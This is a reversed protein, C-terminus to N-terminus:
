AVMAATSAAKVLGASEFILSFTYKCRMFFCNVRKLSASGLSTLVSSSSWTSISKRIRSSAVAAMGGRCRSSCRKAGNTVNTIKGIKARELAPIENASILRDSSKEVFTTVPTVNPKNSPFGMPITKEVSKNALIRNAGNGAVSVRRRNIPKPKKAPMPKVMDINTEVRANVASVISTCALIPIKEADIIPPMMPKKNSRRM